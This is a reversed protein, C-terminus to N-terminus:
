HCALAVRLVDGVVKCRGDEDSEEAALDRADHGDHVCGLHVAFHVAQIEGILGSAVAQRMYSFHPAWRANQNVALRCDREDALSALRDGTDLDLVFPKQSLVHKGARIEARSPAPTSSRQAFSPGRAYRPEISGPKGFKKM